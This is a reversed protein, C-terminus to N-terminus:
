SLSIMLYLGLFILVSAGVTGWKQWALTQPSMRVQRRRASRRMFNNVLLIIMGILALLSGLTTKDM